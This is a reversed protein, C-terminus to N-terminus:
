VNGADQQKNGNNMEGIYNEKYERRQKKNMDKALTNIQEKSLKGGTAEKLFEQITNKTTLKTGTQKSKVAEKVSSKAREAKAESISKIKHESIGKYLAVGAGVQGILQNISSQIPGAM